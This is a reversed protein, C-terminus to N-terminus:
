AKGWGFLKFVLYWIGCLFLLTCDRWQDHACIFFLLIFLIKSANRLFKLRKFIRKQREYEKNRKEQEILNKKRIEETEERQKKEVKNREADKIKREEDLQEQYTAYLKLVQKAFESNQSSQGWLPIHDLACQPLNKLSNINPKTDIRTGFYCDALFINAKIEPFFEYQNDSFVASQMIVKVKKEALSCDEISEIALDLLKRLIDKVHADNQLRRKVREEEEALAFAMSSQHEVLEDNRECEPCQSKLSSDPM